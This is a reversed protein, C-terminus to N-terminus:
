EIDWKDYEKHTGIRKVMVVGARYAIKVLLRYKNRCFDFVVQQKGPFDAHFRKTVDQPTKWKEKKVEAEWADVQARADPHEHKFKDLKDKGVLEM